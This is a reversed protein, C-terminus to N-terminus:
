HFILGAVTLAAGSTSAPNPAPPRQVSCLVMKLFM